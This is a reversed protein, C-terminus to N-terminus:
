AELAAARVKDRLEAMRTARDIGLAAIAVDLDGFISSRPDGTAAVLEDLAAELFLLQEVTLVDLGSAFAESEITRARNGRQVELRAIRDNLKVM